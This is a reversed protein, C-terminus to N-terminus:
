VWRTGVPEIQYGNVKANTEIEQRRERITPGHFNEKTDSFGIRVGKLHCRFCVKGRRPLVDFTFTEDCIDCKAAGM